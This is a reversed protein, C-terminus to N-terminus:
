GPLPWRSPGATDSHRQSISVARETRMIVIPQQHGALPTRLRRLAIIDPTSALAVFAPLPIQHCVIPLVTRLSVIPISKRSVHHILQSHRVQCRNIGNPVAVRLRESGVYPLTANQHALPPVPAINRRPIPLADNVGGSSSAAGDSPGVEHRGLVGGGGEAGGAVM